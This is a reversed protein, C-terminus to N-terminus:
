PLKLLMRTDFFVDIQSANSEVVEFVAFLVENVGVKRMAKSDVEFRQAIAYANVGDAITATVTHLDFIRHYLWGEWEKDSLPVPVATIGIAFADATVIGM